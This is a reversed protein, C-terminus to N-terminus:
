CTAHSWVNIIMNSTSLLSPYLNFKSPWSCSSWHLRWPFSSMFSSAQWVWLLLYIAHCPLFGPLTTIMSYFMSWSSMSICMSQVTILTFTINFLLIIKLCVHLWLFMWLCFWNRNWFQWSVLYQNSIREVSCFWLSQCPM